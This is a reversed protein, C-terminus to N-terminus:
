IYKISPHNAQLAAYTTAIIDAVESHVHTRGLSTATASYASFNQGSSPLKVSHEIRGSSVTGFCQSQGAWSPIHFACNMRLITVRACIYSYQLIGPARISPWQPAAETTILIFIFKASDNTAVSQAGWRM